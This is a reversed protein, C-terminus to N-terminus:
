WIAYIYKGSYIIEKAKDWGFLKKMGRVSGSKLISSYSKDKLYSDIEKTSIYRKSM